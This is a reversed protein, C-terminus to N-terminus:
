ESRRAALRSGSVEGRESILAHCLEIAAQVSYLTEDVSLDLPRIYVLEIQGGDVMAQLDFGLAKAQQIYKPVTEEFITIVGPQGTRVGEAVFQLGITSKGSGAPGAILM